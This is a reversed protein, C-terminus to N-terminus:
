CAGPSTAPKKARWSVERRRRDDEPQGFRKLPIHALMNNKLEESLVATM